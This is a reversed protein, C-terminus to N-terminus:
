QHKKKISGWSTEETAAAAKEAGAPGEISLMADPMEDEEEEDCPIENYECLADKIREVHDKLDGEPVHRLGYDCFYDDGANIARMIYDDAGILVNLKAAVLHHFLKIALNKNTPLDLIHLLEAQTYEDCGVTLHRVPWDEPHNKWFGPTYTCTMPICTCDVIDKARKIVGPGYIGVLWMTMEVHYDGCLEMGWSGDYLFDGDAYIVDLVQTTYVLVDGEYLDITIDVEVQDGGSLHMFGSVSWGECDGDFYLPDPGVAYAISSVSLLLVVSLFVFVSRKM